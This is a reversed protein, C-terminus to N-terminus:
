KQVRDFTVRTCLRNTFGKASLLQFTEVVVSCYASMSM